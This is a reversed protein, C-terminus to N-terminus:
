LVLLLVCLGICFIVLNRVSKKKKKEHVSLTAYEVAKYMLVM